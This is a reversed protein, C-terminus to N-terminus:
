PNFLIFYDTKSYITEITILYHELITSSLDFYQFDIFSLLTSYYFYTYVCRSKNNLSKLDAGFSEPMNATLGTFVVSKFALYAKCVDL